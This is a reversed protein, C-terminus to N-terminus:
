FMASQCTGINYDRNIRVHYYERFRLRSFALKQIKDCVM